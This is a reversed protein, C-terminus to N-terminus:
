EMMRNQRMPRQAGRFNGERRSGNKMKHKFNDFKLKQEDTLQARMELHHKVMIKQIQAKLDSIKDINKSIANLDPNDATTLTKQRAKAEGLENKLPKIKKQVEIFSKRFAEKQEDTLNLGRAPDHQGFRNFRQETGPEPKKDGQSDKQAFGMTAMGLMMGLILIGTKM